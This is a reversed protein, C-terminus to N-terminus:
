TGSGDCMRLTVTALEKVWRTIHAEDGESWYGLWWLARYLAVCEIERSLADRDVQQGTEAEYQEAYAQYMCDRQKSTWRGASISVLDTCRPGFAATEWDIVAITKHTEAPRIMVNKGFYEGHTLHAPLASLYDSIKYYRDLARSILDKQQVDFTSLREEIRRACLVFHGADCHPLFDAKEMIEGPDLAHLRAIWRAADVWLSFDGLRSLRKPGADELFIWYINEGQDWRSGYLTPTDLQLPMLINQYMLVERRSRELGSERIAQAESLLHDPNLDKFFIDIWEDGDFLARIRETAFSSSGSFPERDLRKVTKREGYISSLGESLSQAMLDEKIQEDM